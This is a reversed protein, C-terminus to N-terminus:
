IDSEKYKESKIFLYKLLYFLSYLLIFVLPYILWKPALRKQPNNFEVSVPKVVDEFDVLKTLLHLNQNRLREKQDYLRYLESNNTVNVNSGRSRNQTIYSNLLSDISSISRENEELSKQISENYVNAYQKYHQNSNIYSFFNDVLFKTNLTDQIIFNIRHYKFYKSEKYDKINNSVDSSKVLVEFDTRNYSNVDDFNYFNEVSEIEIGKIRKFDEGFISKLYVAGTPAGLNHEINDVTNYLFDVSEFNQIVLASSEYSKKTFNRELLFLGIGLAGLIIIIIKHKWYFKFISYLINLFGYFISKILEALDQLLIEDKSNQNAQM